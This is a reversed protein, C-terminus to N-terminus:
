RRERKKARKHASRGKGAPASGAHVRAGIRIGGRSIAFCHTGWEHSSGRTKVVSVTPQLDGPARAYRLMLINDASASYDRGTVIDTSYMSDSELTFNSPVGCAKLRAVMACLLHRLEEPVVGGRGMHSAGDLVLRRTRQTRIADDLRSLFQSPRVHEGSLYLIEVFGGDTAQTLSLSLGEATNLIRAPGEELTM